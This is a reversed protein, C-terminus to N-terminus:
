GVISMSIAGGDLKVSNEKIWSLTGETCLVVVFDEYKTLFSNKFSRYLKKAWIKFDESKTVLEGRRAHYNTVCYFRGPHLKKFNGSFFGGVIFEVVPSKEFDLEYKGLKENYTSVVENVFSEHTIAIKYPLKESEFSIEQIVEEVADAQYNVLKILNENLFLQINEWDGPVNFFNLQSSNM